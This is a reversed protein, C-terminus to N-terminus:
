TTKLIRLFCAGNKTQPIVRAIFRCFAESIRDLPFVTSNFCLRFSGECHGFIFDVPFMTSNFGIGKMLIVEKQYASTV